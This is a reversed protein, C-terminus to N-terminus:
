VAGKTPGNYAAVGGCHATILSNVGEFPADVTVPENDGVLFIRTRDKSEPMYCSVFSSNVGVPRGDSGMFRLIAM